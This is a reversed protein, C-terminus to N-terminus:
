LQLLKGWPGANVAEFGKAKLLSTAMASRSGSACCCLVPRAKDLERARTALQDLPINVTGPAHGGAFEAPTRVDVLQAKRAMLAQLQARSAGRGKFWLVALLALPLIWILETM